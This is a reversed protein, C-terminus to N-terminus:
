QKEEEAQIIAIQCVIRIQNGSSLTLCIEMFKEMDDVSYGNGNTETQIRKYIEGRNGASGSWDYIYPSPGWYDCMRAEFSITEEFIVMIAEKGNESKTRMVLQKEKSFMLTLFEYDHLIYQNANIQEANQFIM